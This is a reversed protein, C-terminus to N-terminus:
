VVTRLLADTLDSSAGIELVAIEQTVVGGIFERVVVAETNDVATFTVRRDGCSVSLEDYRRLFLSVSVRYM